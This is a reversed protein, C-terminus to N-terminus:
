KPLLFPETEERRDPAPLAYRDPLKRTPFRESFNARVQAVDPPLAETRARVATITTEEDPRNIEIEREVLASPTLEEYAEAVLRPDFGYGVFRMGQWIYERDHEVVRHALVQKPLMCEEADLVETVLQDMIAPKERNERWGEFDVIYRDLCWAWREEIAPAPQKGECRDLARTALTEALQDPHRSAYRRGALFGMYVTLDDTEVAKVLVSIDDYIDGSREERLATLRRRRWSLTGRWIVLGGLIAGAVMVPYLWWIVWFQAIILEAGFILVAPVLFRWILSDSRLSSALDKRWLAFREARTPGQEGEEDPSHAEVGQEQERVRVPLNDAEGDDVDQDSASGFRLTEDGAGDFAERIRSALEDVPDDAFAIVRTTSDTTRIEESLREV